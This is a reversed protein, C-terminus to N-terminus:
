TTSSFKAKSTRFVVKVNGIEKPKKNGPTTSSCTARTELVVLESVSTNLRKGDGL